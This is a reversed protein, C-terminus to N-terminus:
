FRSGVMKRIVLSIFETGHTKQRIKIHDDDGNEVGASDSLLCTSGQMLNLVRFKGWKGTGRPFYIPAWLNESTKQTM